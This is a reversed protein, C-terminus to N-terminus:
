LADSDGGRFFDVIRRLISRDKAPTYPADVASEAPQIHIQWM